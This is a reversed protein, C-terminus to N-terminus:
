FYISKNSIPGDIKCTEMFCDHSTKETNEYKHSVIENM